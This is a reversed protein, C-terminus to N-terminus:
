DFTSYFVYVFFLQYQTFSFTKKIGSKGVATCVAGRGGSRDSFGERCHCKFSGKINTCFQPCNNGWVVCEDLDTFINDCFTSFLSFLM